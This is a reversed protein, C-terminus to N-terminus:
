TARDPATKLRGEDIGLVSSERVTERVLGCWRVGGTVTCWDACRGYLVAEGAGNEGRRVGIVSRVALGAEEREEGCAAM